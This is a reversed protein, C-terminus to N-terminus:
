KVVNYNLLGNMNFQHKQQKSLLGNVIMTFMYKTLGVGLVM